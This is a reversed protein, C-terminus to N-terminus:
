PRIEIPTNLPILAFLEDMEHNRVAICGETWNLPEFPGTVNGLENPFGHIVIDGGPNVGRAMARKIDEENPYSVTISRYFKSKNNKHILLYEGEPTRLDGEKVKHGIPNKGLSINYERLVKRGDLLYMKNQSKEVLVKDVVPGASCASLFLIIFLFSIRIM